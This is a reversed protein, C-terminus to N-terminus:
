FRGKTDLLIRFAEGTADITVVDMVGLPFKPDRRIVNDVKILGEKDKVIKVVENSTLAYKLRNKLLFCLPICERLKHPGTSPRSSYRGNLKELMWSSPANVRKLHKKPGRAM